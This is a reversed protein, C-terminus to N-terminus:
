AWAAVPDFLTCCLWSSDSPEAGINCATLPTAPLLLTTVVHVLGAFEAFKM